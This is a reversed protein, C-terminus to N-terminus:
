DPPSVVVGPGRYIFFDAVTGSTGYESQPFTNPVHKILKWGPFNGAVDSSFKRHRVHRSRFPNRSDFDSSYIIVFNKALSFLHELYTEYVHNEILHYIVDLSIALSAQWGTMHGSFTQPDYVEFSLNTAGAYRNRCRSIAERSVDLGLYRQIAFKGLQHGDGCGLEVISTVQNEVVFQNIFNAKFDALQGYSGSGSDGGRKYREEWYDQSSRFGISKLVNFLKQYFM